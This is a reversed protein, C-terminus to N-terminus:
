PGGLCTRRLPQISLYILRRCRLFRNCKAIGSDVLHVTHPSEGLAGKQVMSICVLQNLALFKFLIGNFPQDDSNSCKLFLLWQPLIHRITNARKKEPSLIILEVCLKYYLATLTM